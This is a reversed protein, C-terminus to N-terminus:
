KRRLYKVVETGAKAGEYVAKAIQLLGGTCDGAAYLGPISTSMNDDVVIRNGDVFAGLKRALDTSGAVGVAIFAGSFSRSSGDKFSIRELVEEGEFAEIGTEIVEIGDPIAAEMPKGNSLLTVSGVIPKLEMAEHVAYEGNGIVAVDKGRYFFADCTACYSIGMGELEHLGKIRPTARSSGTAIIVADANYQGGKASVTFKGDYSIGVVEDDIIQVGANKAQAIGQRVLKTGEIPNEFGYYNEVKSAKSLAGEDKGIVITNVNARASYLAASIGAPGKGIILVTPM